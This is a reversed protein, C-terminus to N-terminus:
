FLPRLEGKVEVTWCRRRGLAKADGRAGVRVAGSLRMFRQYDERHKHNAVRTFVDMPPDIGMRQRQGFAKSPQSLTPMRGLRLSHSHLVHLFAGLASTSHASAEHANSWDPTASYVAADFAFVRSLTRAASLLSAAMAAARSFFSEAAPPRAAPKAPTRNPLPWPVLARPFPWLLYQAPM